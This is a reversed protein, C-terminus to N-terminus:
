CYNVTITELSYHLSEAWLSDRKRLDHVQINQSGIKWWMKYFWSTMAQCPYLLICFDSLAFCIGLSLQQGFFEARDWVLKWVNSSSQM